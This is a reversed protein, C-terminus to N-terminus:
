KKNLESTIVADLFEKPPVGVIKRGAIYVTPTAEIKIKEAFNIHEALQASASSSQMAENFKAAAADSLGAKKLSLNLNKKIHEDTFGEKYSAYDSFHIFFFENFFGAASAAYMARAASCSGPYVSDDMFKNCSADLPYHYYIIEVRNKYKALIYKELQYFKYCASCLFDTFAYIKVKADPNGLKMTSEPFQIKEAEQGYFGSVLRSIQSDPTKGYGAKIKLVNSGSFVSFALFFVFVIFLSFVAKRDPTDPRFFGKLIETLKDRDSIHRIYLILLVLMIVNIVYTSVCLRCLEGIRIMLIGLVIDAATGAIVLPLALGMFIHYYYDEAYDAILLLFTILTFYFVGISALPIGLISAYPSQGVTICPNDFGKGCSLFGLQMEPYFHQYLLIGSIIAGTFSLFLM